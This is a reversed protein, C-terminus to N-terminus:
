ERRPIRRSRGQEQDAGVRTRGLELMQGAGAKSRGQEKWAGVRSMGLM